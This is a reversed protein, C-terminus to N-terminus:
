VVFLAAELDADGDAAGPGCGIRDSLIGVIHVIAEDFNYFELYKEGQIIRSRGNETIAIWIKGFLVVSGIVRWLASYKEGYEARFERQASVIYIPRQDELSISRSIQEEYGYIHMAQDFLTAGGCRLLFKVYAVPPSFGLYSGVRGLDDQRLPPYLKHLYRLKQDANLQRIFRAGSTAVADIGSCRDIEAEIVAYADIMHM